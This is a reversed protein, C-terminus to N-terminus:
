DIGDLTAEIRDILAQAEKGIVTLLGAQEPCMGPLKRCRKVLIVLEALMEPAYMALAANARDDSGAFAANHPFSGIAWTSANRLQGRDLTWPGDFDALIDFQHEHETPKM